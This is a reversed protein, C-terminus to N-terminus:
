RCLKKVAGNKLGIDSTFFDTYINKQMAVGKSFLKKCSRRSSKKMNCKQTHYSKPKM